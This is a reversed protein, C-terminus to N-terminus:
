GNLQLFQYVKSFHLRSDLFNFKIGRSSEKKLVTHTNKWNFVERMGEDNFIDFSSIPKADDIEINARDMNLTLQDDIWKRYDDIDLGLINM